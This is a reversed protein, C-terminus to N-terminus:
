SWGFAWSVASAIQYSVEHILPQVMFLNALIDGIGEVM